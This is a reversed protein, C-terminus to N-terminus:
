RADCRVTPRSRVDDDDATPPLPRRGEQDHGYGNTDSRSAVVVALEVVAGEPERWRRTRDGFGMSAVRTFRPERQHKLIHMAVEPSRADQDGGHQRSVRDIREALRSADSDTHAGDEDRQIADREPGIQQGAMGAAVEGAAAQSRLERVRDTMVEPSQCRAEISTMPEECQDAQWEHHKRVTVDPKDGSADDGIRVDQNKALRLPRSRRRPTGSRRSPSKATMSPASKLSSRTAIRATINSKPPTM